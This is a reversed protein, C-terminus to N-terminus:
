EEDVEGLLLTMRYGNQQLLVEEWITWNRADKDDLWLFADTEEQDSIDGISGSFEKTLSKSFIQQDKKLNIYPFDESRVSYIFRGNKSFIIAVHDGHLETLRRAASEKSVQCLNQLDIINQLSPTQRILRHTALFSKPMLLHSAFENAEREMDSINNRGKERLSMDEKTCMLRTQGPKAVHRLNLFHGLEHAITFRKRFTPSTQNVLIFGNTKTDDQILGGEFGTTELEKIELIGCAAACAEINIPVPNELQNSLQSYLLEALRTPQATDALDCRDITLTPQM